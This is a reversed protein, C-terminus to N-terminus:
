SLDAAMREAQRAVAARTNTKQRRVFKAVDPRRCVSSWLESLVGLVQGVAVNRCEATEYTAREVGLIAPIIRGLLDPRGRVIRGAGQIANAASILNGGRIFALYTDLLADLKRDSDAQALSAIIQIANWRIIKSESELLAAVVDFYPYVRRPDRAATLALAKGAAFRATGFPVAMAQVAAPVRTPSLMRVAPRKRSGRRSKKKRPRSPVM